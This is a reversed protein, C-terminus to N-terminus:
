DICKNFFFCELKKFIWETTFTNIDFSNTNLNVNKEDSIFICYLNLYKFKTQPSFKSSSNEEKDMDISSNKQFDKLSQNNVDHIKKISSLVVKLISKKSKLDNALGPIKYTCSLFTGNQNLIKIQNSFYLEQIIVVCKAALDSIIISSSSRLNKLEQFIILPIILNLVGNIVCKYIRACCKMWANSDFIVYFTTNNIISKFKKDIYDKMDNNEEDKLNNMKLKSLNVFQDNNKTLVINDNDELEGHNKFSTNCSDTQNKNFITYSIDSKPQSNKVIKSENFWYDDIKSFSENPIRPSLNKKSISLDYNNENYIPDHYLFGNLYDNLISESIESPFFSKDSLHYFDEDFKFDDITRILGFEYNDSITRALLIIRVVRENIGKQIYKLKKNSEISCFVSNLPFSFISKDIGASKCDKYNTKTCIMDFWLTGWCKWVELIVENTNFHYIYDPYTKIYSLCLDNLKKDKKIVFLLENLYDILSDWPFLNKILWLFMYKAKKHIKLGEGVAILFYLWVLVHGISVKLLGNLYNRLIRFSLFLASKNIYKLYSLWELESIGISLSLNFNSSKMSENIKDDLNDISHNIKQNKSIKNKNITKLLNFLKAFPNKLDGFGVLQNINALAFSSGKSYFFNMKEFYKHTKNYQYHPYDDKNICVDITNLQQSTISKRELFTNGQLDSGFSISYKIVLDIGFKTQNDQLKLNLNDIKRNNYPFIFLLTKNIKIFDFVFLEIFTLLDKHTYINDIILNLYNFSPSFPERCFLSKGINVLAELDDQQVTCLHYYFKGYGYSIRMARSYWYEASSNWDIFKSSCFIIGIRFLDGIKELWWSKMECIKDIFVSMMNFCFSIFCFPLDQGEIFDQSVKLIEFFRLIGHIWMRKSVKSVDFILKDFKYKVLVPLFDFSLLVFSLYYNLLILNNEYLDYLDNIIEIKKTTYLSSFNLYKKIELNHDNKFTSHDSCSTLTLCSNSTDKKQDCVNLKLFSAKASTDLYKKEMFEEHLLINKYINRLRFYIHEGEAELAKLRSVRSLENSIMSDHFNQPDSTKRGSQKNKDKVEFQDRIFVAEKDLFDKLIFLSFDSSRSENQKICDRRKIRSLNINGDKEDGENGNKSREIRECEMENKKENESKQLEISKRSEKQTLGDNKNVNCSKISEEKDGGTINM